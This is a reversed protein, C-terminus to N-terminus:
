RGLADAEDGGLDGPVAADRQAGRDRGVVAGAALDPRQHLLGTAAEHEDVDRRRDLHALGPVDLAEVGAGSGTPQRAEGPDVVGVLDGLSASTVTSVVEIV